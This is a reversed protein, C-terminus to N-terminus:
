LSSAPGALAALHVSAPFRSKLNALERASGAADGSLRLARVRLALDEEEFTGHPNRAEYADLERLAAQGDGEQVRARARRISELQATLSPPAVEPTVSSAQASVPDGAVAARPSAARPESPARPPAEHAAPASARLSASGLSAPPPRSSPLAAPVTPSPASTTNAGPATVPTDPTNRAAMAAAGAGPEGPLAQEHARGALYGSSGATAAAIVGIGVKSFAVHRLNALLRALSPRGVAHTAGGTLVAAGSAAGLGLAGLVAAETHVEPSERKGALILARLRPSGSELVRKPENM